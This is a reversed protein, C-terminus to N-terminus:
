DKYKTKLDLMSSVVEQIVEDIWASTMVRVKAEDLVAHLSVRLIMEHVIARIRQHFLYVVSIMVLKDEM